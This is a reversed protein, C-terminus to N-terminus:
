RMEKQAEEIEKKTPYIKWQPDCKFIENQKAKQLITEVPENADFYITFYDLQEEKWFEEHTKGGKYQIEFEMYYDCNLCEGDKIAYCGCKKCSKLNSFFNEVFAYDFKDIDQPIKRIFELRNSCDQYVMLESGCKLKIELSYETIFEMKVTVELSYATIFEISKIENWKV